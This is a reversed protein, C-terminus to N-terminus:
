ILKSITGETAVIWGSSLNPLHGSSFYKSRSIANTSILGEVEYFTYNPEIISGRGSYQLSGV